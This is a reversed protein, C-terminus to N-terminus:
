DYQTRKQWQCKLQDSLAAVEPKSWGVGLKILCILQSAEIHISELALYMSYLETQELNFEYGCM